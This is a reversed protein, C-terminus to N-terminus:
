NRYLHKVAIYRLVEPHLYLQAALAKLREGSLGDLDLHELKERIESSSCDLIEGEIRYFHGNGFIEHLINIRRSMAEDSISGRSAALIKAHALIVEPERWKDFTELSDAGIIFYFRVDPYDKALCRMTEATYTRGLRHLEYDSPKLYPYGEIALKVMDLRTQGDLLEEHEKYGPIHNPMFWVEDLHYQKYAAKAIAIHGSHIPNFTGGIIGIVSM